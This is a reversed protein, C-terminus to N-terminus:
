LSLSSLTDLKPSIFIGILSTHSLNGFRSTGESCILPSIATHSKKSIEASIKSYLRWTIERIEWHCKSISNWPPLRTTHDWKVNQHNLQLWISLSSTSAIISYPQTEWYIEMDLSCLSYLVQETNDMLVARCYLTGWMFPETKTVSTKQTSM